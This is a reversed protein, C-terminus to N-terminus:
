MVPVAPLIFPPCSSHCLMHGAPRLDSDQCLPVSPKTNSHDVPCPPPKPISGTLVDGASVSSLAPGHPRKNCPSPFRTGIVLKLNTVCAPTVGAIGCMHPVTVHFLFGHLIYEPRCRELVLVCRLHNHPCLLCLAHSPPSGAGVGPAWQVPACCVSGHVAPPCCKFFWTVGPSTTHM